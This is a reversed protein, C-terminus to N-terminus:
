NEQGIIREILMTIIRKNFEKSEGFYAEMEQDTFMGITIGILTNKLAVDKQLSQSIFTKRREKTFDNFDVKQRVIYNNFILVYLDNQLKMIPRLTQNQFLEGETTNESDTIELYPRLDIKTSM